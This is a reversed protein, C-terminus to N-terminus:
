RFSINITRLKNQLIYLEHFGKNVKSPSKSTAASGNNNTNNNNPTSNTCGM